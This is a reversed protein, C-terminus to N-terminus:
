AATKTILRRTGSMSPRLLQLLQAVELVPLVHVLSASWKAQLAAGWLVVGALVPMVHVGRRRCWRAQLSARWMLVVVPLVHVSNVDSLVQMKADWMRLLVLVTLAPVSNGNSLGQLKARCPLLAMVLKVEPRAQLNAQCLLVEGLVTPAHVSNVKSVIQM